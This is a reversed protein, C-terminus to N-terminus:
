FISLLYDDAIFKWQHPFRQKLANIVLHSFNKTEFDLDLKLLYKGNEILKIITEIQIDDTCKLKMEVVNLLGNALQLIESNNLDVILHLHQLTMAYKLVMEVLSTTNKTLAIVEIESINGFTFKSPMTDIYGKVTFSKLHQFHLSVNGINIDDYNILVLEKLQQLESALQLLESKVSKLTLCQMQPHNIIIRELTQTTLYDQNDALLHELNSLRENSFDMAGINSSGLDLIKIAPFLETFTFHSNGFDKFSGDLSLAYVTEFPKWLRAFIDNYQNSIHLAVLSESCYNNILHYMKQASKEPLRFTNKIYLRSWLHGFLQLMKSISPLHKFEIHDAHDEIEFGVFFQGHFFYPDSLTIAKQAFRGKFVKEILEFLRRNNIQALSLLKATSLRDLILLQCDVNLSM